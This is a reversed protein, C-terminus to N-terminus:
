ARVRLAKRIHGSHGGHGNKKSISDSEEKRFILYIVFCPQFFLSLNILTLLFQNNEIFEEILDSYNSYNLYMTVAHFFLFIIFPVSLQRITKNRQEKRIIRKFVKSKSILHKGLTPNLNSLQNFM